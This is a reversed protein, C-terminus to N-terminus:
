NSEQILTRPYGTVGQLLDLGHRLQREFLGGLDGGPKAVRSSGGRGFGAAATWNFRLRPRGCDVRV